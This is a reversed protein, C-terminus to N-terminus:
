LPLPAFPTASSSRKHSTSSWRPRSSSNVARAPADFSAGSLRSTRESPRRSPATNFSCAPSASNSASSSSRASVVACRLAAPAASRSPEISRAAASTARTDSPSACRSVFAKAM